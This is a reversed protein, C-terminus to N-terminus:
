DGVQARFIFRERDFTNAVADCCPLCFTGKALKIAFQSLFIYADNAFDLDRVEESTVPHMAYAERDDKLQAAGVKIMIPKDRDKDVLIRTSHLWADHYFQRLRVFAHQPVEEEPQCIVTPDLEFTAHPDNADVTTVVHYALAARFLM